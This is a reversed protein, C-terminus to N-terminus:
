PLPLAHRDFRVQQQRQLSGDPSFEHELFRIEGHRDMTIVTSARTGYHPSIIKAASLLRETALPVGTDPLADDPAIGTDALIDFLADTSLDHQLNRRLAACSRTVKPWPTDLLHNSLGHIGSALAQPQAAHNGFYWLQEVNGFLLNFGSYRHGDTHLRELFSEASADSALFDRVLEGRSPADEHIAGPHRYNTIVAFRGDLRIGLWAGGAALDRGGFVDPADQWWHASRTPRAHLEDRNGIFVFPFEEHEHLAFALLCM